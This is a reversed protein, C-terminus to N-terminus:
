DLDGAGVAVRFTGAVAYDLDGAADIEELAGAITGDLDGAGAGVAFGTRALLVVDLGAVLVVEEAFGAGVLEEVALGVGAGVAFGTRATLMVDFGAVLAEDETFGVGAVLAEEVAVM